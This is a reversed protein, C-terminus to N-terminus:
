TLELLGKQKGKNIMLLFFTLMLMVIAVEKNQGKLQPIINPGEKILVKSFYSQPGPFPSFHREQQFILFSFIHLEVM